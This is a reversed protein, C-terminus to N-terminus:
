IEIITAGWSYGVGFGVLIVKDGKKIINEDISDKLSIPITSSVTNGYNLMDLHYKNEPIECKKRLYEIMYKNAQHFIVYDIDGITLNNKELAKNFVGPINKITFNFIEQGNMFLNNKSRINGFSDEVEEHSLDYKNRHGGTPVILNEYGSGDTGLCFELIQNKESKSILVAASADGFISRTSKDLPHIYKSYTEATVLLVNRAINTNIISKALALGYIFGSCGLNFDLAGINNKLGLRKQLICASTPLYYDPSQTCFLLFDIEGKDENKFLKLAAEYGLDLATQGEAAIHREKIGVKKEIKESSWNSFEKELMKNTLINQPLYYSINKIKTYM